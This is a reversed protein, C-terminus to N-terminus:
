GSFTGNNFKHRNKEIELVQHAGINVWNRRESLNLKALQIKMPNFSIKIIAGVTPVITRFIM